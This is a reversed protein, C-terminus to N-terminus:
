ISRTRRKEDQKLKRHNLSKKQFEAYKDKVYDGWLIFAKRVSEPDKWKIWDQKNIWEHFVDDTTM